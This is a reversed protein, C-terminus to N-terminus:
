VTPLRDQGDQPGPGQRGRVRGAVQAVDAEAPDLDHAPEVHDELVAV